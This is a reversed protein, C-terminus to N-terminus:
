CRIYKGVFDLARVLSGSSKSQSLLINAAEAGAFVSVGVGAFLGGVGDLLAGVGVSIGVLDIGDAFADAAVGAFSLEDDAVGALDAVGAVGDEM